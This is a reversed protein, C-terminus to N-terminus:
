GLTTPFSTLVLFPKAILVFAHRNRTGTEHLQLIHFAMDGIMNSLCSDTNM